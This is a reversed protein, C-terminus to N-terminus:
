EDYIYTNYSNCKSCKIAVPHYKNQHVDGCDNCKITVNIIEHFPTENVIEDLKDFYQKMDFMSKFCLPCKYSKKRYEDFCKSHMMHGNNCGLFITNDQEFFMDRLCICCDKDSGYAVCVHGDESDNKSTMCVGCTDCHLMNYGYNRIRCIKCKDCHVIDRDVIDDIINCMNCCYKGFITQCMECKQSFRQENGCSTCQVKDVDDNNMVHDYVEDNHCRRCKYYKDCVGCFIVCRKKYHPCDAVYDNDKNEEADNNGNM